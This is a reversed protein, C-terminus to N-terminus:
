RGKVERTPASARDTQEADEFAEKENDDEPLLKHPDSIISEM